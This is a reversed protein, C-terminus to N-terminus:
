LNKIVKAPNGAIVVKSPFSKTVVSGAGVVSNEGLEVGPLVIVNAGIWSGKRITIPKSVLHGQDIIPIDPNIFNHNGVYFHVGSGILVDDEITIGAGNKDPDAFLMTAPRIVVRKGISIKSCSIAYAGPRFESTESFRKFKKKCIRLMSKKFFLRWHTFPIDPGLRDSNKDFKIKMLFEVFFM